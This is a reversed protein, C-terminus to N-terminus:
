DLRKRHRLDGRIVGADLVLTVTNGEEAGARGTSPAVDSDPVLDIRESRKHIGAPYVATLVLHGGLQAVQSVLQPQQSDVGAELVIAPSQHGKVIQM